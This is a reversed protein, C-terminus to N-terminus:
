TSGSRYESSQNGLWEKQKLSYWDYPVKKREPCMPYDRFKPHLEKPISLKVELCCGRNSKEKLSLIKQVLPSTSEKNEECENCNGPEKKHKCKQCKHKCKGIKEGHECKEIRCNHDCYNFGDLDSNFDKRSPLQTENFKTKSNLWQYPFIGKRTLLSLLHPSIFKSMFPFCKALQEPTKTQGKKEDRLNEAMKALGPLSFKLSDIFQLQGVSFTIYQESNNAIPVIKEDTVKAIEQMLHHFDYGSGNCFLVPIKITEPDIRLKLNCSSHSAGRFKGTIHDHDLVKNKGEDPLQTKCYM